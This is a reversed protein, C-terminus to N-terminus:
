RQQRRQSQHASFELESIQGDQNADIDAFSPANGLNRMQYGQQARKGVRNSRAQNFEKELIKGDGDLDYESFAPMNMGTGSGMGKGMRRGQGVGMNRRKGMQAKQGSVLEDQTLQGDKNTDFEPFSPASAAGRMPRGDAASTSRREARVSSFEQESIFGNNDKDYAAFPIPGRDPIVQSYTNIPVLIMAVAIIPSAFNTKKM